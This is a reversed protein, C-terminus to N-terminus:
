AGATVYLVSLPSAGVATAATRLVVEVGYTFTVATLPTARAQDAWLTAAAQEFIACLDPYTSAAAGPVYAVQIPLTWTQRSLPLLGTGDVPPAPLEPYAFVMAIRGGADAIGWVPPLAPDVTVRLAAFAAPANANADWLSARIVAFAGGLVRSPSSFLPVSSAPANGPLPSPGGACAWGVLGRAPLSATFSFPMFRGAPDDVRIVFPRATISAWYADDGGGFGGAPFFPLSTAYYVGSRNPVLVTPPLAVDVPQASVDLDGTIFSRTLDDWFRVGVPAVRSVLELPVFTSM